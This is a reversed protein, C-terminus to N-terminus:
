EEQPGPRPTANDLQFIEQETLTEAQDLEISWSLESSPKESKTKPSEM